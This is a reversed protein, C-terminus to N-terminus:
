LKKLNKALGIPSKYETLNFVDVKLVFITIAFVVSGLLISIISIFLPMHNIIQYIIKITQHLGIRETASIISGFIALNFAILFYFLLNTFPNIKDNRFVHIVFLLLIFGSIVSCGFVTTIFKSDLKGLIEATWASGLGIIFFITYFWNFLTSSKNVSSVDAFEFDTRHLIAGRLDINQLEAKQLYLNSLDVFRLNIPSYNTSKRYENWETLDKADSCKKLLEYAKKDYWIGM